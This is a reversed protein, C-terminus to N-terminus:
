WLLTFQLNKQIPVILEQKGNSTRVRPQQAANTQIFYRQDIAYLGDGVAIINVGEALKFHAATLLEPKDFTVTRVLSRKADDPQIRDEVAVGKLSYQFVPRGDPLLRYGKPQLPTNMVETAATMVPFAETGQVLETLPVSNFFFQAAGQPRFSGDGRDHWMPTADVFPGRWACVVNGSKLDYVYHVGTPDGVGITHTLRQKNDGNFDLFARLLRPSAGPELLIPSVPDDAPPYSNFAHLAQPAGGEASVYLALRPPLWSADKYNYIEIPYTGGALQLRGVDTRWWGDASQYNVLTQQNVVLRAGGTYSLVFQYNAAKPVTLESRYVSGYANDNELVECSLEAQTGTAAPKLSAFDAITKYNGYFTQYQVPGLAVSIVEPVLYRINRIAVPGHDGQIMLPGQPKENNEVPGGTPKPVEVQNHIRVGNLEVFNFRANETKNGNADFRPARFSIRMTQWTGPVKAANLLPAKGLYVKAPDSEWNRYIGGIDTFGPTAVGWSDFLQVEYRGQLYLGSNSGKPLMVELELELDGHEFRSLLADRKMADNLNLLIGTGAQFTVPQPRPPAEPAPAAKKGKKTPPAAAPPAKEAEHIDILPHMRVAGVIQWNGAQPRFAALDNLPLPQLSPQAIALGMAAVFALSLFKKMTSKSGLLNSAKVDFDFVQEPKKTPRKAEASPIAM